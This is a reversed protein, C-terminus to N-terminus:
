PGVSFYYDTINGTAPDYYYVEVNAAQTPVLDVQSAFDGTYNGLSNSRSWIFYWSCSCPDNVWLEFYKSAPAKGSVVDTNFNIAATLNPLTYDAVGTGSIRDGAKLFIPNGKIELVQSFYGYADFKGSFTFTYSFHKISLKAPQFPIGSLTCYNGGLQCYIAPANQVHLFTFRASQQLLIAFEDGGRFKMAGFDKSWQKAASITGTRSLNTVTNAANLNPHSWFLTYPKGAPGVGGVIANPKDFTTIIINPAFVAYTGLLTPTTDYVKFTLKYGPVVDSYSGNWSFCRNFLDINGSGDADGEYNAVVRGTKDRLSAVVHSFAGLNVADFCGSYLEALFSPGSANIGLTVREAQPVSVMADRINSYSQMGALTSLSMASSYKVKLVGVSLEPAFELISGDKQLALLKPMIRMLARQSQVRVPLNPDVRSLLRLYGVAQSQDAAQAVAPTTAIALLLLVGVLLLRLTKM